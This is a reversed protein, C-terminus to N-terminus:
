IVESGSPRTVMVEETGSAMASIPRDVNMPPPNWITASFTPEYANGRSCDAMIVPIAEPEHDSTFKTRSRAMPGHVPQIFPLRHSSIKQSMATRGATPMAAHYTSLRPSLCAAAVFCVAVVYADVIPQSYPRMATTAM